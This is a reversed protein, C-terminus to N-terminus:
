RESTYKSLLARMVSKKESVRPTFDSCAPLSTGFEIKVCRKQEAGIDAAATVCDLTNLM